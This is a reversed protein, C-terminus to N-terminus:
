LFDGRLVVVVFLVVVRIFLLAMGVVGMLFMVMFVQEEGEGEDQPAGKPASSSIMPMALPVRVTVCGSPRCSNIVSVTMVRASPDVSVLTSDLISLPGVLDLVTVLCDLLLLGIVVVM